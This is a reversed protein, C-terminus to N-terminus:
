VMDKLFKMIADTEKEKLQDIYLLLERKRPTHFQGKSNEKLVCLLIQHMRKTLADWIELHKEGNQLYGNQQMYQIRYQQMMKHTYMVYYSQRMGSPMYGIEWNENLQLRLM